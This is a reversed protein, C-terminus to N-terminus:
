KNYKDYDFGQEAYWKRAEDEDYSFAAMTQDSILQMTDTDEMLEPNEEVVQIQGLLIAQEEMADFVAEEVSAPAEIPTQLQKPEETIVEEVVKKKPEETAFISKKAPKVTGKGKLKGEGVIAAERPITGEDLQQLGTDTTVFPNKQNISKYYKKVISEIANDLDIYKLESKKFNNTVDSLYLVIDALNYSVNLSREAEMQQEPFVDSLNLQDTNILQQSFYNYAM